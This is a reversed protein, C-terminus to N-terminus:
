EDLGLLGADRSFALLGKSIWHLLTSVVARGSSADLPMDQNYALAAEGFCKGVALCQWLKAQAPTLCEYDVEEACRYILYFSDVLAPASPLSLPLDLEATDTVAAQLAYNVSHIQQWMIDIAHATTILDACAQPMFCLKEWEGETIVALDSLTVSPEGDVATDIAARVFEFTILDALAANSWQQSWNEDVERLWVSLREGAWKIDFHHPPCAALYNAIMQSFRASGLLRVTAPVDEAIADRLRVFYANNYVQIGRLASVPLTQALLMLRKDGAAIPQKQEVMAFMTECATAWNQQSKNQQHLHIPPLSQTVISELKAIEELRALDGITRATDLEQMLESFAPLNADRELLTPADPFLHTALKYLAWVEDSVPADHTDIRVDPQISHGALHFYGIATSPLQRLYAVADYGLNACNVYLNNVDLLLRCGTKQVLAALFSAEDWDDDAFRVYASPNELLFQMGLYDQVQVIRASILNLTEHTLAVPLLDHSNKHAHRTWCLHDSVFCPRIRLTLDRLAKLYDSRLPAVSAISLGVGHMAIPFKEGLESLVRSPRGGTLMFNESIIELFDVRMGDTMLDQYYKPRYGLGFLTM